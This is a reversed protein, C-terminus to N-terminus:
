RRKSLISEEVDACVYISKLRNGPPQLLFSTPLHTLLPRLKHATYISRARRRSWGWYSCPLDDVEGLVFLEPTSCGAATRYTVREFRTEDELKKNKFKRKRPTKFLYTNRLPHPILRQSKEYFNQKQKWGVLFSEIM